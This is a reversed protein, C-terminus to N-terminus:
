WVPCIRSSFFNPFCASGVHPLRSSFQSPRLLSALRTSGGRIESEKATTMTSPIPMQAQPIPKETQM